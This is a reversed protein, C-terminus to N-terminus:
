PGDARVTALHRFVGGSSRDLSVVRPCAICGQTVPCMSRRWSPARLVALEQAPIEVDLPM